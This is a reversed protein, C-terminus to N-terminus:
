TPFCSGGSAVSSALFTVRQKCFPLAPGRPHRQEGACLAAWPCAPCAGRFVGTETFLPVHLVPPRVRVRPEAGSPVWPGLAGLCPQCLTRVTSWPAAAVLPDWGEQDRGRGQLGMASSQSCARHWVDAWLPQEPTSCRGGLNVAM